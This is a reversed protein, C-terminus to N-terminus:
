ATRDIAPSAQHYNYYAFAVAVNGMRREGSCTGAHVHMALMEHLRCAVEVEWARRRLRKCVQGPQLRTKMDASM